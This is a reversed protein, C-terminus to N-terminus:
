PVKYGFSASNVAGYAWAASTNPDQEFITGHFYTSILLPIDSASAGETASSKVVHRINFSGADTKQDATLVRVAHITAPTTSLAAHGFLEKDGSVNPLTIYDSGSWQAEDVCAYHSTGTSPTGDNPGADSNPVLTEIRTDGVRFSAIMLDDFYFSKSVTSATDAISMYQLSTQGGTAITNLGTANIVQQDDIWLEVVGASGDFKVRMDIWHWVGQGISAVASGLTAQGRGRDFRWTSTLDNYLLLVQQGGTTCNAAAVIRESNDAAYLYCAFSMWVDTLNPVAVNFGPNTSSQQWAGGGFRGGSTQINGSAGSYVWQFEGSNNYVDFGDQWYITM